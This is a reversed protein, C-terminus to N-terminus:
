KFCLVARDKLVKSEVENLASSSAEKALFTCSQKKYRNIKDTLHPKSLETLKDILEQDLLFVRYVTSRISMRARTDSVQNYVALLASMHENVQGTVKEVTVEDRINVMGKLEQLHFLYRVLTPEILDQHSTKVLGKVERIRRTAFELEKTAKTDTVGLFRLELAERISKLFYLPSAPTIRSQGISDEQAIVPTVSVNFILLLVPILLKFKKM